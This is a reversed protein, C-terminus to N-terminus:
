LEMTFARKQINFGNPSNRYISNSRYVIPIEGEYNKLEDICIGEWLFLDSNILKSYKLGKIFTVYRNDIQIRLSEVQSHLDLYEYKINSNHIKKSHMHDSVIRREFNSLTDTFFVVASLSKSYSFVWKNYFSYCSIEERNYNLGRSLLENSFIMALIAFSIFFWKKRKSSIFFLFTLVALFLLIISSKELWVQQLSAYPLKSVSGVLIRLLQLLGQMLADLYLAHDFLLLFALLLAGLAVILFVLPVVLLNSLIFYNPFQHFYHLVFPLTTLQAAISVVVISIIKKIWRNRIDFLGMVSPHILIIGMVASYSLQFSLQFLNFPDILLMVFASAAISNLSTGKRGISQGLLFFSFMFASRQVSSSFGSLFAFSWIILLLLFAKILLFRRKLLFNFLQSFLLYVIGLHLGSVALVHMVGAQSFDNRLELDLGSKDGLILAKLVALNEKSISSEQLLSILYSRSKFAKSSISSVSDILVAKSSFAQFYVGRKRLYDSYDFQAPNPAPLLGTIRLNLHLRDGVSFKRQSESKKLYLLVKEKKLEISSFEKVVLPQLLYKYYSNSEKLESEIEAVLVTELSYDSFSGNYRDAQQFLYAGLLVFFLFLLLFGYTGNLFPHARNSPLLSPLLLIFVAAFLFCYYLNSIQLKFMEALIIGLITALLLKPFVLRSSFM